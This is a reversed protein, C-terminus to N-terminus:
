LFVFFSLAPVLDLAWHMPGTGQFYVRYEIQDDGFDNTSLEFRFNQVFRHRINM